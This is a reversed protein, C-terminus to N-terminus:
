LNLLRYSRTSALFVESFVNFRNGVLLSQVVGLFMITRLFGAIAARVVTSDAGSSHFATSPACMSSRTADSGRSRRHQVQTLLALEKPTWPRANMSRLREAVAEARGNVSGVQSMTGVFGETARSNIDLAKRWRAVTPEAINWYFCIARSTEVYLAKLLDDSVVM